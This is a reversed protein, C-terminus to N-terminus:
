WCRTAVPARPQAGSRERGAGLTEEHLERVSLLEDQEAEEHRDGGQEHERRRTRMGYGIRSTRPPIASPKTGPIGSSSSGGSRTSTAMRGGSRYAPVNKAESCSSFTFRRGIPRSATPSTTAVVTATASTAWATISPMLQAVAKTSPAITEGVSGTAAPDIARRSPTGRRSMVIM